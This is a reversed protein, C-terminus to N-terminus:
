QCRAGSPTSYQYLIDPTCVDNPYPPWGHALDECGEGSMASQGCTHGHSLGMGHGFEHSFIHMGKFVDDLDDWWPMDFVITARGVKVVACGCYSNNYASAITEIRYCARAPLGCEIEMAPEASGLLMMEMGTTWFCGGGLHSQSTGQQFRATWNNFSIGATNWQYSTTNCHKWDIVKSPSGLHWANWTAPFPHM